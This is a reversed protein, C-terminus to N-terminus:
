LRGGMLKSFTVYSIRKANYWREIIDDPPRRQIPLGRKGGVPYGHWPDGSNVPADFFAVREGRTGFNEQGEGAVAWYDGAKDSWQRLEAECFTHCESQRDLQWISKPNKTGTASRHDNRSLYPSEACSSFEIGVNTVAM